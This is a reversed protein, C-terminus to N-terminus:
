ATVTAAGAIKNAIEKAKATAADLKEKAKKAQDEVKIRAKDARQQAKEQQAALKASADPKMVPTVLTVGPLELFPPAVGDAFLNLFIVLNGSVGPITYSARNPATKPHLSHFQLRGFTPAVGLPQDEQRAAEAFTESPIEESDALEAMQQEVVSETQEENRNRGHRSM